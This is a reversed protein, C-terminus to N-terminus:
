PKPENRLGGEDLVLRLTVGKMVVDDLTAQELEIQGRFKLAKLTATPLVFPESAPDPPPIYRAIDLSDGRLAFEGVPDEGAGRRFSGTFQTDDVTLALPDIAVAGNDFQWSLKVVLKGLARPDTTAPAEVGTAALLARPDFENSEISGTLRTPTGTEDGIAGQVAGEAAFGGFAIEYEKVVISSLDWAVDARPTEFRFPVGAAAFGDMHLVGAVETDTFPEGDAIEDTALNLSEVTVRRSAVEDVFSIRSDALEVGDIRLPMPEADPNKPQKGGIGEWNASGDARRVLRLDAGELRVRSAVLEGRLLPFLKAGLQASKWRVMPETGFGPANGFRGEGTRLSLWPFFGLDIDGVLSFERGTAARVAAEIRPKFANPDVIWVVVLVAAFLLLVLGALVLSIWKLIRV